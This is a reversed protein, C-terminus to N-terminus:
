DIPSTYVLSSWNKTELWYHIGEQQTGFGSHIQLCKFCLRVGYILSKSSMEGKYELTKPLYSIKPLGECLRRQGGGELVTDQNKRHTGRAVVEGARDSAGAPIHISVM